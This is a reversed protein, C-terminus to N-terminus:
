VRRFVVPLAQVYLALLRIRNETSVGIDGCRFRCIPCVDTPCYNLKYANGDRLIRFFDSPANEARTTILMRGTMNPDSENDLAWDTPQKCTSSAFFSIAFDSSERIITEDSVFPNFLVPLGTADAQAAQGVYLPCSGNRDVLTLGGGGSTSSPLIYYQIGPQLAQGATDLVAPQATTALPNAMVLWLVAIVGIERLM